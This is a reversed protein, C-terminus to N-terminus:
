YIAIGSAPWCDLPQYSLNTTCDQDLVSAAFSQSNVERFIMPFEGWSLLVPSSFRNGWVTSSAKFKKKQSNTKWHWWATIWWSVALRSTCTAISPTDPMHREAPSFAHSFVKFVQPWLNTCPKRIKNKKMLKNRSKVLNMLYLTIKGHDCLAKKIM